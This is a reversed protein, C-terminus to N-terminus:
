SWTNGYPEYPLPSSGENVMISGQITEPTEVDASSTYFYIFIYHGNSTTTITISTAEPNQIENMFIVGEDPLVATEAVVFRSSAMKSVTYTTNPECPMYTSKTTTGKAILSGTGTYLSTIPQTDKDYKQATPTYQKIGDTSIWYSGVTIAGPPQTETFYLSTNAAHNILSINNKNTDIQEVDEATIGSNMADLQADTPTFGGGGGGGGNEVIKNLYAEVRTLPKEPIETSATVGAIASLYEEERTLPEEPVPFGNNTNDSM